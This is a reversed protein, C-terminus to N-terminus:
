ELSTEVKDISSNDTSDGIRKTRIGLLRKFSQRILLAIGLIIVRLERGEAMGYVVVATIWLQLM